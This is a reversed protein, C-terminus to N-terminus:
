KAMTLNSFEVKRVLTKGDYGLVRMPLHTATSIEVVERTLAADAAPASPILTVADSPVGDIAGGPAESLRGAEQQAHGLIAGFHEASGRAGGRPRSRFYQIRVYHNEQTASKKNGLDNPKQLLPVIM